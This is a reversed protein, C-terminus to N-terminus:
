GARTATSAMKTSALRSYLYSTASNFEGDVNSDGIWTGLVDHVYNAREVPDTLTGDDLPALPDGGGEPIRFAIEGLGVRDGGPGWGLEGTGDGPDDFWNDTITVEVYRATM